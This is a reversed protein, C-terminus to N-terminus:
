PQRPAAPSGAPSGAPSRSVARLSGDLSTVTAVPALRLASKSRVAAALEGRWADRDQQWSLVYFVVREGPQLAPQSAEVGHVALFSRRVRDAGADDLLQVEGARSQVWAKPTLRRGSQNFVLILNGERFRGAVALQRDAGRVFCGDRCFDRTRSRREYGGGCAAPLQRELDGEPTRYLVPGGHRSLARGCAVMTPSPAPRAAARRTGSTLGAPRHRPAPQALATAPVFPLAVVGPAVLALAVALGLPARRARGPTPRACPPTEGAPRQWGLWECRGRM